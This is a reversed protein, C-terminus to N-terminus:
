RASVAFRLGRLPGQAASDLVFRGHLVWAGVADVIPFSV